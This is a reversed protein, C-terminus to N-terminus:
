EMGFRMVLACYRSEKPDRGQLVGPRSLRRPSSALSGRHRYVVAPDPKGLRKSCSRRDYLIWGRALTFRATREDRYTLLYFFATAHLNALAFARDDSIQPASILGVTMLGAPGLPMELTSEEASNSVAKKSHRSHTRSAKGLCERVYADYAPDTGDFPYHQLSLVAMDDELDSKRTNCAVCARAILNWSRDLTGKPVFNTAIVHEKNSPVGALVARCYCCTVNRLVEPQNKRMKLPVVLTYRSTPPAM